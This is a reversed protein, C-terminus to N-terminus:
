EQTGGGNVAWSELKEECLELYGRGPGGGPAPYTLTSAASMTQLSYAQMPTSTSGPTYLNGYVFPSGASGLARGLSYSKVNEWELFGRLSRQAWSECASFDPTLEPASFSTKTPSHFLLM